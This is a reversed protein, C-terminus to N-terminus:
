ILPKWRDELCEADGVDFHRMFLSFTDEGELGLEQQIAKDSDELLIYEEEDVPGVWANYFSDTSLISCDAKAAAKFEAKLFDM